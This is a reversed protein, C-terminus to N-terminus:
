GIRRFACLRMSWSVPRPDDGGAAISTLAEAIDPRPDVEGQEVLVSLNMSFVRAILAPAPELTVLRDDVREVGPPDAMASLVPGVFLSGGQREIVRLAVEDLYTRFVPEHTEIRELDDLLLVGGIALQTTWSRVHEVPDALHALILRAYLADIPGIPFPIATADHQVFSIGDPAGRSAREVHAQSADLGVTRTARAVAHLMRTTHGPGSGLDVALAPQRVNREIFARSVPEFMTAVLALREAALDTDGYTYRSM